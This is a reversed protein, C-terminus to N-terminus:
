HATIAPEFVSILVAQIGRSIIRYVQGEDFQGDCGLLGEYEATLIVSVVLAADQEPAKSGAEWLFSILDSQMYESHRCAISKLKENRLSELRFAQEALLYDRHEHLQSCVYQFVADIVVRIMQHRSEPSTQINKLAASLRGLSEGWFSRYKETGVEVFLTFTDTILDSIDKFYYTTASLPVNAEKAVARHRVGRVGERVVIRLAAELIAKRRQESGARSTKRGQYKLSPVNENSEVLENKAEMPFAKYKGQNDYRWDRSEYHCSFGNRTGAQHM